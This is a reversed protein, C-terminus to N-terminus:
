DPPLRRGARRRAFPKLGGAHAALGARVRPAAQRSLDRLWWAVATRTFWARDAAPDAASGLVRERAAAGAPRPPNLRALPLTVVLAVRRTWLPPGAARGEVTDLRAPDAMPRREGVKCAHDALAWGDFDPLWSLLLASVAGDPRIRAPTRLKAAALRTEHVTSAWLGAAQAVRGDPALGARREAARRPDGPAQLAAPAAAAATM